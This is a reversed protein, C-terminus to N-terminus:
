RAVVIVQGTMNSHFTCKYSYTGPTNFTVTVSEGPRAILAQDGVGAVQVSHTFNDGNHWTVTTGAPVQVASPSFLYSPPMEVRNTEVPRAAASVGTSCAGVGLLLVLVFVAVGLPRAVFLSV